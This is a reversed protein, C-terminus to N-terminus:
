HSLNQRFDPLFVGSFKCLSVRVNMMDRQSQEKYAACDTNEAFFLKFVSPMIKVFLQPTQRGHPETQHKLSVQALHM